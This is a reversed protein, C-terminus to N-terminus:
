GLYALAKDNKKIRTSTLPARKPFEQNFKLYELSVDM